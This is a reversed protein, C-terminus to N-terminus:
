SGDCTTNRRTKVGFLWSRARGAVHAALEEPQYFTALGAYRTDIAAQAVQGIACDLQRPEASDRLGELWAQGPRPEAEGVLHAALLLEIWLILRPQEALRKATTLERLTC